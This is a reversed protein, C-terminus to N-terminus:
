KVKEFWQKVRLKANEQIDLWFLNIDAFHYSRVPKLFLKGPVNPLTSWVIGDILEIDINNNYIKLDRFLLGKHIKKDAKKNNDWTIPNSTVGGKFWNEYNDKRPYKNYKFTNWSVFGGTEHPTKMVKLNKFENERVKIGVLYAAILKEQLEKGDIFESILRKAHVTGQSHSAIIFPKGDNFNKLYHDFADRIDSYALDLAKNGDKNFKKNFVRIHAQRYFPVYLNGAEMWATAQYKVPRNIVDYRIEQDWINSNWEKQNKGDILTPYIFFIDANKKSSNKKFQNIEEPIKDPLVAWSENNSYNPKSIEPSEEFDYTNYSLKCGTIFWLLVYIKFFNRKFM